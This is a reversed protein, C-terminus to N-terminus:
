LSFIAAAGLGTTIISIWVLSANPDQLAWNILRGLLIYFVFMGPPHPRHMYLDFHDLALAFNISDWHHLINSQFPLRSIIGLTLLLIVAGQKWLTTYSVEKNAYLTKTNFM